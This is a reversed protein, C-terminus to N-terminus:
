SGQTIMSVLTPVYLCVNMRISLPAPSWSTGKSTTGAPWAVVKYSYFLKVVSMTRVDSRTAVHNDNHSIDRCSVEHRGPRANVAVAVLLVMLAVALYLKM